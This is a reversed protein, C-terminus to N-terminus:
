QSLLKKLQSVEHEHEQIRAVEDPTKGLAELIEEVYIPISSRTFEYEPFDHTLDRIDWKEIKGFDTWVEELIRLDGRSLDQPQVESVLEIEYDPDVTTEFAADWREPDLGAIPIGRVLNMVHSLVPGHQMSYYQDGVVPRGRQGMSTREAIYLLKLLKLYSMAGGAKQLLYATAEIARDINFKYKVYKSM